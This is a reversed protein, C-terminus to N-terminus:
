SVLRIPPRAWVRHAAGNSRITFRAAEPFELLIDAIPIQHSISGNAQGNHLREWRREGDQRWFWERLPQFPIWLCDLNEVREWCREDLDPIDAFCVFLISCLNEEDRAGWGPIERGPVTCSMTEFSVKEARLGDRRGRIIKEDVRHEEPGRTLLVDVHKRQREHDGPYRLVSWGRRWYLPDLFRTAIGRQWIEDRVFEARM